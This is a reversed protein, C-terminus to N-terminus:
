DFTRFFRSAVSRKATSTDTCRPPRTRLRKVADVSAHVRRDLSVLRQRRCFIRLLAVTRCRSLTVAIGLSRRPAPVTTRIHRQDWGRCGADYRRASGQGHWCRQCHPGAAHRSLTSGFILGSGLPPLTQASTCWFVRFKFCPDPRTKGLSSIQRASCM